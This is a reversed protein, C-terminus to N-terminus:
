GHQLSDVCMCMCTASLPSLPNKLSLMHYQYPFSTTPLPSHITIINYTM